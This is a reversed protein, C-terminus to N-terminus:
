NGMEMFTMNAASPDDEAILDGMMPAAPRNHMTRAGKPAPLYGQVQHPNPKTGVMANPIMQNHPHEDMDFDPIWPRGLGAFQNSDLNQIPNAVPPPPPAVPAPAPAPALADLGPIWKALYPVAFKITTQMLGGVFLASGYKPVLGLLGASATGVVANKYGEDWGGSLVGHEDLMGAIKDQAYRNALVGVALPIAHKVAGVSFGKKAGEVVGGPNFGLGYFTNRRKQRRTSRRPARFSPNRRKHSRRRRRPNLLIM